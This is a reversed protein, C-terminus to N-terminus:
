VGAREELRRVREELAVVRAGTLATDRRALLSFGAAYAASDNVTRMQEQLAAFAKRHAEHLRTHEDLTARIERLLQPVPTDPETAM